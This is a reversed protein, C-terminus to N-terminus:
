SSRLHRFRNFVMKGKGPKLHALFDDSPVFGVIRHHEMATVDHVMLTPTWAIDSQKMTETRKDWFCQSKVPIFENEIYQQVKNVCCAHERAPQARAPRSGHADIGNRHIPQWKTATKWNPALGIMSLRVAASQRKRSLRDNNFNRSVIDVAKNSCNTRERQEM